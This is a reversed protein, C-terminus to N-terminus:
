SLRYLKLYDAIAEPSNFMMVDIISLGAIFETNRQPYAKLETEFFQIDIGFSRYKEVEFIDRGGPPNIYTKAGMAKCIYLAWEGANEPTEHSLNMESYVQYSFPIHLYDCTKKLCNINIDVIKSSPIDLSDKILEITQNYFPAKKKYHQLQGLLKSKWDESESAEINKIVEEREHKKLPVNIYQWDLGDPKQIRNRNIWGHRIYQPTDFVVWEEVMNIHQFYGIYPFFYPQMIGVTM